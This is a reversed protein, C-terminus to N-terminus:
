FRSKKILGNLTTNSAVDTDVETRSDQLTVTTLAAQETTLVIKQVKGSDFLRILEDDFSTQVVVNNSTFEDGVNRTQIDNALLEIAISPDIGLDLDLLGGPVSVRGGVNLDTELTIGDPFVETIRVGIPLVRTSGLDDNENVLNILPLTPIRTLKVTPFNLQLEQIISRVIQNDTPPIEPAVSSTEKFKPTLVFYEDYIGTKMNENASIGFRRNEYPAIRCLIERGILSNNKEDTLMRWIPSKVLPKGNLDEEFGAFYEVKVLMEYDIAVSASNRITDPATTAIIGIMKRPQVVNQASGQLFIAKIQNPLSQIDTQTVVNHLGHVTRESEGASSVTLSRLDIGSLLETRRRKVTKRTGVSSNVLAGLFNNVPVQDSEANADNNQSEAIQEPENPPTPCDNSIDPTTQTPATDFTTFGDLDKGIELKISKTTLNSNVSLLDSLNKNVIDSNFQIPTRKSPTLSGNSPASDLAANSRFITAQIETAADARTVAGDDIHETFRKIKNKTSTSTTTNSENLVISRKQLDIRSPSLFSFNTTRISDGETIQTTGHSINVDPEQTTFFRETEQNVRSQFATNSIRRLGDDNNTEDVGRSLYDVGVSKIINSDFIQDFSQVVKFTQRSTRSINLVPSQLTSSSFGDFRRSGTTVTIGAASALNQILTDILRIVTSIGNPNGTDPAVFSYLSKLLRNRDGNNNLAGTFMDLTDAYTAIPSIWPAFKQRAGLFRSRQKVIFNQTFRNSAIDFSGANTGSTGAFESPHEIHPNRIEQTYKSMAPKSADNLYMELTSKAALLEEMKEVLFEVTADDVELEVVYQYKGDTVESMGLDMGTFHRVVPSSEEMVVNLERLTGTSFRAQTLRKWSIDSSCAIFELPENDDFASVNKPSGLRNSVANEKVRKRFIRISRILTNRLMAIKLRDDSGAFLPGFVSNEEVLKEFDITFFFKADGDKDRSLFMDSFYTPARVVDTSDNTLMKTINMSLPGSNIAGFNLMLREIEKVDRFDQLKTNSVAFRNLDVSDETEKAGTRFQGNPLRHVSGAWIKSQRDLFTFSQNLLRFDSIVLDSAVKGNATKLGISSFDINFDQALAVMDLSTVAFYALHPPNSTPVEFRQTFSIDFVRNGDSDVTEKFQTIEPSGGQGQKHAPSARFVTRRSIIESVEQVSDVGYVTAALKMRSDDASISKSPDVLDLLDAGASLLDTTNPDTSQIVKIQLYKALDQNAFWTGILDNNLKEKMLLDLTVILSDADKELKPPLIERDHDIHPNSETNPTGSTELTIKRIYVDPILEGLLNNQNVAM